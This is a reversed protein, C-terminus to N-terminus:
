VISKKDGYRDLSIVQDPLIKKNWARHIVMAAGIASAQPISAAFVDMGPFFRSLVHMYVRNKSFGGDVFIRKVVSGELILQLADAQKKVLGQVFAHYAEEYSGYRSLDDGAFGAKLFHEDFALSSYYGAPKNFYSSLKKTQEEHEHGAFLRSAKVPRGEHTLYTLCDNQLQEVTLAAHSFPNLSVCWTGTSILVFPGDMCQLYPILAASSDHLGTGVAVPHGQLAIQSTSDASVIPALIGRIKEEEVWRHYENKEFSWLNTHCGISTMDSVPNGCILYSLYQPLHLAYRIRVFIGPKANKIRYLQM